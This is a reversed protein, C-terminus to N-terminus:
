NTGAGRAASITNVSASRASNSFQARRRVLAAPNAIRDRITPPAACRCVLAVLIRGIPARNKRELLDREPPLQM